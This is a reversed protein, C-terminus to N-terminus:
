LSVGGTGENKSKEKIRRNKSKDNGFRYSINISLQQSNWTSKGDMILEDTKTSYEQKMTKFVDNFGLSVNLKNELFTKRLGTNITYRSGIEGQPIIMPGYYLYNAYLHWNEYIKFNNMVSFSYSIGSNSPTEEDGILSSYNIDLSPRIGWWDFATYKGSIEWGLYDSRAGNKQSITTFISDNKIDIMWADSSTRYYISSSINYKEKYKTYGIELSHTTQPKLDPNGISLMNGTPKVIPNLDNNGPRQIRKSYSFSLNNTEEEGFSKSVHLTPFLNFYSQDTAENSIDQKSELLGDLKTYEGRLGLQFNWDAIKSAYTSYISFINERFIFTNSPDLNIPANEKDINTAYKYDETNDRYQSMSGVEFRNGDDNKNSYDISAIFQNNMDLTQDEQKPLFGPDFSGGLDRNYFSNKDNNYKNYFLDVELYHQFNGDFIHKYNLNYEQYRNKIDENSSLYNYYALQGNVFSEFNNKNNSTTEGFNQGTSITILDNDTISYDIGTKIWDGQPKTISNSKTNTFETYKDHIREQNQESELSKNWTWHNYNVFFNVRKKKYNFDFGGKYAGIVENDFFSYTAAYINVNIGDKLNKKLIINIIGVESNASYKASPNTIVEVKEITNSPIQNLLQENSMNSPRGDVLIRINSSGRLVVDGKENTSLSPINKLIADASPGLAILDEGVNIVKKDIQNSYTSKEAVIEIDNLLESNVSLIINDLLLISQNEIIIKQKSDIYGMFSVSLFYKGKKIDKIIFDGDINSITGNTVNGNQDSVTISAFEIPKKNVENIVKGKIDTANLGSPMVIYIILVM